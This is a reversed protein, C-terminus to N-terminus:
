FVHRCEIEMNNIIYYRGDDYYEDDVFLKMLDAIASGDDVSANVYVESLGNYVKM